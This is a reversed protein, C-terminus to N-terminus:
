KIKEMNMFIKLDILNKWTWLYKKIKIETSPGFPTRNLEDKVESLSDGNGLPELKGISLDECPM